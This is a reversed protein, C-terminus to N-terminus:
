VLNIDKEFYENCAEKNDQKVASSAMKFQNLKAFEQKPDLNNIYDTFPQTAQPLEYNQNQIKM